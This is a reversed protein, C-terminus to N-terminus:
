RAMELIFIECNIAEFGLAEADREAPTTPVDWQFQLKPSDQRAVLGVTHTGPSLYICIDIQFGLAKGSFGTEMNTASDAYDQDGCVSEPIVADNLTIATQVYSYRVSGTMTAPDAQPNVLQGGVVIRFFGGDECFFQKYLWESSALTDDPGFLNQWSRNLLLKSIQNNNPPGPSFAAGYRMGAADVTGSQRGLMTRWAVDPSLDSFPDLETKLSDSLNHENLRGMEEVVPLLGDNMDQFSHSQGPEPLRRPFKYSVEVELFTLEGQM